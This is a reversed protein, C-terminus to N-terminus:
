WAGLLVQFGTENAAQLVAQATPIIGGAGYVRVLNVAGLTNTTIAKMDEVFDTAGKLSNDANQNGLCLGLRGPTNAVVLRSKALIIIALATLIHMIYDQTM